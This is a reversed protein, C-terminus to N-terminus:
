STGMSPVSGVVAAVAHALTMTADFEIPVGHLLDVVRVMGSLQPM